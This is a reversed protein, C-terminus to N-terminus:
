KILIYTESSVYRSFKVSLTWDTFNLLVMDLNPVTIIYKM